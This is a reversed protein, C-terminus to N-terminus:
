VLKGLNENKGEGNKDKEARDHLVGDRLSEFYADTDIGEDVQNSGSWFELGMNKLEDMFDSEVSKLEHAAKYFFDKFQEPSELGIDVSYVIGQQPIVKGLNHRENVKHAASEVKGQLEPDNEWYTSDPKNTFEPGFTFMQFQISGHYKRWDTITIFYVLGDYRVRGRCIEAWQVELGEDKFFRKLEKRTM